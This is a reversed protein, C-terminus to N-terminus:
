SIQLRSDMLVVLQSSVVVVFAITIVLLSIVLALM